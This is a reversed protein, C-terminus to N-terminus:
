KKTRLEKRYAKAKMQLEQWMQPSKTINKYKLIGKAIRVIDSQYVKKTEHLEIFGLKVLIKITQYKTQRCMGYRQVFTNTLKVYEPKGKVPLRAMEWGYDTKRQISSKHILCHIIIMAGPGVAAPAAFLFEPVRQLTFDNTIFSGNHESLHDLPGVSGYLSNDKKNTKTSSTSTNVFSYM